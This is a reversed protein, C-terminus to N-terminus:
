GMPSSLVLPVLWLQRPWSSHWEFPANKPAIGSHSTISSDQSSVQLRNPILTYWALSMVVEFMGLLFRVFTVGAFNQVGGLGITAVNMYQYNAMHTELLLDDHTAADLTKANGLSCLPVIRLDQKRLLARDEATQESDTEAVVGSEDSFRGYAKRSDYRGVFQAIFTIAAEKGAKIDNERVATKPLAKAYSM